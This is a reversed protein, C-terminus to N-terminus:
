MGGMDDTAPRGGDMGAPEPQGDKTVDIIAMMGNDEHALIHCHFVYKGLFDSFKMRIVVSGGAPLKIIDQLNNGPLPEGNISMVQFDNVHIHFPHEERATNKITWEEVTDFKPTFMPTNMDFQKGNIYFQSTKADESFVVTRRAAVTASQLDPLPGMTTPMPPAAGKTGSVKVTALVREPYVDGDPGTQYKLTRLRYKGEADWRVLVDFRKGPPLLLEDASVVRGAPNADEALVTFPSGDMKLKYWIDASLNALRLMQAGGPQATLVPNVQGNVTRTTPADSDINETLIKNSGDIQLDKLGILHEPVNRLAAPLRETLGSVILAGSLGSFVQAETLGHLHAHYWYTGPSIDSPIKIEVQNDTSAKMVRLVNDSVGIPSTHVGHTHFNTQKSLSNRLTIKITDGPNASLTPGMFQGSYSMGMIQQGAVDFTTPKVDFSTQVVGGQSKIVTPEVFPLGQATTFETRVVPGGDDTTTSDVPRATTTPAETTSTSSSKGSDGCSVAGVFGVVVLGAAVARAMSMKM